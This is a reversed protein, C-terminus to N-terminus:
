AIQATNQCIAMQTIAYQKSKIDEKIEFRPAIGSWKKNHLPAM